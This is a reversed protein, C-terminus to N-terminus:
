IELVVCPYFINNIGRNILNIIHGHTLKAPYCASESPITEIGLEYIKKSSPASLMVSFGLKTLLTFWFPYNEYMNLVRPIGITGRVAEDDKLPKYGFTRKYKYDYLFLKLFFLIYYDLPFSLLFVQKSKYVQVIQFTLM